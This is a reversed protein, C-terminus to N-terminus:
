ARGRSEAECGNTSSEAVRAAAGALRRQGLGAALLAGVIHCVAILLMTVAFAQAFAQPDNRQGLVAYFLGGLVAVGIAASVQLTSNVM